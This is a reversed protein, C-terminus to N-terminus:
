RAAESSHLLELAPDEHAGVLLNKQIHDPDLFALINLLKRADSTVERLGIDWLSEM